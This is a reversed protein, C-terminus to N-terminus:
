VLGARARATQPDAGSELMSIAEVASPASDPSSKILEELQAYLDARADGGKAMQEGPAPIYDIAKSRPAEASETRQADLSSRLGKLEEQQSKILSVMAGLATAQAQNQARQEALFQDLAPAFLEALEQQGEAHAKVLRDAHEAEIREQADQAEQIAEFSKSLESNFSDDRLRQDALREARETDAGAERLLEILEDRIM